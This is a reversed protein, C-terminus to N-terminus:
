MKIEVVGDSCKVTTVGTDVYWKHPKDVQYIWEDRTGLYTIEKLNYCDDFVQVGMISVNVPIVVSVLQKCDSFAQNMISQVNGPIVINSINTCSLFGMPVYNLYNLPNIGAELLISGLEGTAELTRIETDVIDYFERWKNAEILDVHDEIFEKVQNTM